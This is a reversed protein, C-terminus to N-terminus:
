RHSRAPLVTGRCEGFGIRRAGSRECNGRFIVSDGDELFTRTEGNALQIPKKGGQSLELLSGAQDADPGSLTGTGFLDGAQLNCGNITHHAVMQAVTWYADNFNSKVLREGAQGAERMKPTQLWVELQIDFAGAERNILSDLYPLPQPDGAPRVFASRFPALAEITVIWPSLTSAFNKSLFPGLPQYEWPQIDRATWDNFLTMGFVHSEAEDMSVAEGRGNPTGIFVGIELEYDLRRTPGVSPAEAEPAKIQGRPRPFSEGSVGISSARGHYGIPVWKYNPLLPNEPRFQKGVTTAHHISTYFDTYDGIRCPLGMEVDSQAVLCDRAKQDAGGDRLFTSIARRLRRRDVPNAAMLRNMDDTDILGAAALDLVQDGIAVGIRLAGTEGERRFRGFPLNQIPFETAPDNASEVWSKLAPDHTEDISNM